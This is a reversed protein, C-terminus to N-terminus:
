AGTRTPEVRADMSKLRGILADIKSRALENREVLGAKEAAWIRNQERLARNENGLSECLAILEEVKAELAILDQALM